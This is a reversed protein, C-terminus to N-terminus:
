SYMVTVRYKVKISGDSNSLKGFSLSLSTPEISIDSIYSFNYGNDDAGNVRMKFEVLPTMFLSAYANNGINTLDNISQIEGEDNIIDLTSVTVPRTSGVITLEGTAFIGLICRAHM